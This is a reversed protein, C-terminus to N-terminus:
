RWKGGNFAKSVAVSWVWPENTGGPPADWYEWDFAGGMNPYAAVVDCIAAYPVSFDAFQTSMMGFVVKEPPYGNEICQRYALLSYDVYFQGNFYDILPGVSSNYLDKYVFGGLGPFDHQLSAQVPAMAIIYDPFDAHLRAILMEVQALEVVEEIDLDFGTICPHAKATEVLLAYYAEFDSFLAQYAGGAGGIMAVVRIGLAAAQNMQSWLTAYSPDLPPTDNLHIYKSGDPNLGFHFSSLHIHTVVPNKHLIPLIGQQITQYYYIIRKTAAMQNM